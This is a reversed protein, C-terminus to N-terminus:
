FRWSTCSLFIACRATNKTGGGHYVWRFYCCSHPKPLLCSALLAHAGKKDYHTNYRLVRCFLLVLSLSVAMVGRGDYAEGQEGTGSVELYQNWTIDTKTEDVGVAELLWHGYRTEVEGMESFFSYIDMTGNKQPM